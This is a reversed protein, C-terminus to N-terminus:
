PEFAPGPVGFFFRRLTGLDILNVVGDGNFDADADGSFFVGRLEGLDLVNVVGDGNLDPDCANGPGDLDTDRQLPNADERCSDATNPWGDADSDEATTAGFVGSVSTLEAGPADLISLEIDSRLFADIGATELAVNAAVGIAGFEGNGLRPATAVMSLLESAIPNGPCTSIACRRLEFDGGGPVTVRGFQLNGPADPAIDGVATLRIVIQIQVSSQEPAVNALRLVDNFNARAIARDGPLGNVSRSAALAYGAAIDAAAAANSTAMSDGCPGRQEIVSRAANEGVGGDTTENEIQCSVTEATAFAIATQANTAPNWMTTLAALLGGIIKKKNDM